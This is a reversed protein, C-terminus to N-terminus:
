SFKESVSVYKGYEAAVDQLSSVMAELLLQVKEQTGRDAIRPVVCRLFGGDGLEVKLRVRLLKESANILGFTIGSVAACVIDEGPNAYGAHGDVTVAAIRGNGDRQVMVRIM